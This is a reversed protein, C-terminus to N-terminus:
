KTKAHSYDIKVPACQIEGCCDPYKKLLDNKTRSCGPPPLRKSCSYSYQSNISIEVLKSESWDQLIHLLISLTSMHPTACTYHHLLLEFRILQRQAECQVCKALSINQIKDKNTKNLTSWLFFLPKSASNPVWVRRAFRFNLGCKLLECKTDDSFEEGIRFERNVSQSWCKGPHDPHMGSEGVIWVAREACDSPWISITLVFYFLVFPLKM